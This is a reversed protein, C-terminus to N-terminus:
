RNGGNKTGMLYVRRKYRVAGFSSVMRREETGVNRWGAPVHAAIQADMVDIVGKLVEKGMEHTIAQVDEEIETNRVKKEIVIVKEEVKITISIHVTNETM